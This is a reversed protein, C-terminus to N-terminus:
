TKGGDLLAFTAELWDEGVLWDENVFGNENGAGGGMGPWGRRQPTTKGTETAKVIVGSALEESISSASSLGIQNPIVHGHPLSDKGDSCQSDNSLIDPTGSCFNM